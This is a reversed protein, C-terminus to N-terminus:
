DDDGKDDEYKREVRQTDGLPARCPTAEVVCRFFVRKLITTTSSPGCNHRVDKAFNLDQYREGHDYRVSGMWANDAAREAKPRSSKEEGVVRRRAHCLLGHDIAERSRRYGDRGYDDRYSDDRDRYHRHYRHHRPRFYRWRYAHRHESVYACGNWLDSVCRVRQYGDHHHHRHRYGREDERVRYRELGEHRLRKYRLFRRVDDPSYGITRDVWKSGDGEGYSSSPAAIGVAILVLLLLAASRMGSVGM